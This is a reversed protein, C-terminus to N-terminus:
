KVCKVKEKRESEFSGMWAIRSEVGGFFFFFINFSVLDQQLAFNQSHFFFKTISFSFFFSSSSRLVVSLTEDVWFIGARRVLFTDVCWRLSSSLMSADCVVMTHRPCTPSTFSIFVCYFNFDFVIRLSCCTTEVIYFISNIHFKNLCIIILSHSIRFQFNLFFLSILFRFVLIM